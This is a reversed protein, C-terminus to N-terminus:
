SFMPKYLSNEGYGNLQRLKHLHDLEARLSTTNDLLDKTTTSMGSSQHHTSNATSKDPNFLRNRRSSAAAMKEVDEYSQLFM